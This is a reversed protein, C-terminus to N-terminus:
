YIAVVAVCFIKPVLVTVVDDGNFADKNPFLGAVVNDDDNTYILSFAIKQFNIKQYKTMKM